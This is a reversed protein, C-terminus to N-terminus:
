AIDSSSLDAFTRLSHRAERIRAEFAGVIGAHESIAAAVRHGTEGRNRRTLDGVYVHYKGCEKELAQLMAEIRNKREQVKRAKILIQYRALHPHISRSLTSLEVLEENLVNFKAELHKLFRQLVDEVRPGLRRDEIRRIADNVTINDLVLLTELDYTWTLMAAGLRKELALCLLPYLTALLLLNRVEYPWWAAREQWLAVWQEYGAGIVAL